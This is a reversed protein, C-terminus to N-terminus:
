VCAHDLSTSPCRFSTFAWIGIRKPTNRRALQGAISSMEAQAQEPTTNGTLRGVVGFADALRVRQFTTWRPDSNIPLWLQTERATSWAQSEKAPFAFDPPMVGIVQFSANDIELRRGIVDPASAFRQKWFQHSLVALNQTAGSMKSLSSSAWSGGSHWASHLFEGLGERISNTGCQRSCHSKRDLRGPAPLGRSRRFQQCRTKWSKMLRIRLRCDRDLNKKPVTVECLLCLRDPRGYPSPKLSVGYVVSFIAFTIGIGIALTVISLLAFGPSKFLARFAYRFSSFSVVRDIM